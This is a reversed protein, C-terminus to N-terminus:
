QVKQQLLFSNLDGPSTYRPSKKIKKNWNLKKKSSEDSTSAVGVLTSKKLSILKSTYETCQPLDCVKNKVLLPTLNENVIEKFNCQNFKEKVARHLPNSDVPVIHFQDACWDLMAVLTPWTM